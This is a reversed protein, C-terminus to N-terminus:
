FPDSQSLNLLQRVMFVEPIAEREISAHGGVIIGVFRSNSAPFLRTAELIGRGELPKIQGTM